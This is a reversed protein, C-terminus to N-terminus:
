LKELLSDCPSMDFILGAPSTVCLLRFAGGSLGCSAIRHYDQPIASAYGQQASPPGSCACGVPMARKHQLDKSRPTHHSDAEKGDDVRQRKNSGQPTAAAAFHDGSARLQSHNSM